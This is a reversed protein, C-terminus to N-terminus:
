KENKIYNPYLKRACEPCIGHSFEANSHDRIYSEIQNWYGQDDRIKKCSACIPLLGSLQKVKAALAIQLERALREREMEGQKRETIDRVTLLICEQKRILALRMNIEVWFLDGTKKKCHWEFLQPGAQVAKRMRRLAEERTYASEGSSIAGIDLKLAEGRDYGFLECTRQNVDQMAGTKRDFLVIADNVSDFITRFRAESEGLSQESRRREAIEELLSERSRAFDSEIMRRDEISRILDISRQRITDERTQLMEVNLLIGTLMEHLHPRLAPPVGFHFLLPARLNWIFGDAATVIIGAIKGVYQQLQEEANEVSDAFLAFATSRVDKHSLRERFAFGPPADEVLSLLPYKM